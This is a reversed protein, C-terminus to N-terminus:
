IFIVFKNGKKLGNIIQKNKITKKNLLLKPSSISNISISESKMILATKEQKIKAIDNKIRFFIWLAENKDEIENNM